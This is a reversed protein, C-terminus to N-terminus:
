FSFNVINSDEGPGGGRTFCIVKYTYTFDSLLTETYALANSQGSGNSRQGVPIEAVSVFPVPCGTCQSEEVSQRARYVGCADTAAKGLGALDPVSWSLTLIQGDIRYVLDSV